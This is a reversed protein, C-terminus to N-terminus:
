AVGAVDDAAATSSEAAVVDGFTNVQSGPVLVKAAVQRWTLFHPAQKHGIEFAKRDIYTEYFAFRNEVEDKDTDLEIVDFGLCGPEDRVSAAANATIADLFEQRHEPQVQLTVWLVYV